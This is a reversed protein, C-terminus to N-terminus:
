SFVSGMGVWSGQYWGMSARGPLSAPLMQDLTLSEEIRSSTELKKNKERHDGINKLAHVDSEGERKSRGM